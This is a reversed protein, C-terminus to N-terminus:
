SRLLKEIVLYSLSLAGTYILMVVFAAVIRAAWGHTEVARYAYWTACGLMIEAVIVYVAVHFPALIHPAAYWIPLMWLTAESVGLIVFTLLAVIAYIKSSEFRGRLRTATYVIGFLPLSWMLGMYAPVTGIFPFGTNPFILSGLVASLFFDPLIQLISLPFVFLWINVWSRHGLSHGAVPIAINYIVLLLFIKWGLSYTLPALLFAAVILAFAAHFFLCDREDRDLSNWFNM